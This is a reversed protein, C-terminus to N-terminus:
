RKPKKKSYFRNVKILKHMEVDTHIHSRAHM